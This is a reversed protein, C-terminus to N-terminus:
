PCKQMFKKEIAANEIQNRFIDLMGIVERHLELYEDRDFVSYNGHAIENRTKLLKTDILVSKTSYISFDIGLIYTIEKLIESSLNSATSIVDKPLICRQNLESIFFDCVPIYLSPKNTEKAEKLKEKMALALFNSSLEQYTLKKSIVYELYSNAALKVFGEWHSYLICVGSRVLAKHRQDSVNKAEVMSKMESLEKKRWSLDTALRDSLEEATRISM